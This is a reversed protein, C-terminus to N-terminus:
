FQDRHILHGIAVGGANCAIHVALALRPSRRRLLGLGYWFSFLGLSRRWRRDLLVHKLTFFLGTWAIGAGPEM